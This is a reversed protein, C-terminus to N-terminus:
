TPLYHSQHGSLKDHTRSRLFRAVLGEAPPLFHGPDPYFTGKILSLLVRSPSVSQRREIGDPRPGGGNERCGIRPTPRNDDIHGSM